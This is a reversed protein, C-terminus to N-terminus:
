RASRVGEALKQQAAAVGSGPKVPHGRELLVLEIGSLAALIDFPDTYGM